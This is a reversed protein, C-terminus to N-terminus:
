PAAPRKELRGLAAQAQRTLLAGPAGGALEQLLRRAAPTGALELVMVARAVRLRPTSWSTSGELIAEMQRRVEPTPRRKLAERLAPEALDGLGELEQAARKRVAFTDSDLDALWRQMQRRRSADLPAVPRLHDRLFPVARQPTAALDRVEAHARPADTDTLAAWCKDTDLAAGSGKGALDWLVVNADGGGTALLKGDPSFAGASVGSMRGAFRRVEQGSAIEVVVAANEPEETGVLLLKSDPSFALGFCRRLAPPLPQENGTAVDWLRVRYPYPGGLSALLTGDPSFAVRFFEDSSEFARLEKLTATDWVRLSKGRLPGPPGHNSCGCALATGDASFALASAEDELEKLRRIEKGSQLDWLRLSRDKGGSALMRGDPSLALAFDVGFHDFRWRPRAGDADWVSIGRSKYDYSAVLPGAATLAQADFLSPADWSFLTSEADRSWDWRRVVRDRAAVFLSRGDPAFQLWTVVGRPGGFPSRERGTAVDWLRVTSNWMAGSVLTKGDPTFALADTRLTHAQVSRLEKGSDANWLRVMGGTNGSAVVKGDPSFAVADVEGASEGGLVAREKRGAVDWLRVTKDDGGSALTRGDPAFAIWMANGKHGVLTGHPAGTAADWLRVEKGAGGAAVLRGDPSFAVSRITGEAGHLHRLEAGTTVDWIRVLKDHGGSALTKGDPSFAVTMTVGGDNGDLRRVEKGSAVDWLHLVRVGESGALLRGDPSFAIGYVHRTPVVEHLLKGTALDWLCLGRGGGGSALTKGDPSVAVANVLFGHHLRLSGLRAVAGEPLPDGYRDRGAARAAAPAAPRAPQTQPVEKDPPQEPDGAVACAVGVALLLAGVVKWPGLSLSRLVGEAAVTAATSIPAAYGGPTVRAIKATTELLAAPVAAPATKALDIVCLVAALAVGRRSLRQQL